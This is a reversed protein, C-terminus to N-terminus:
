DGLEGSEVLEEIQQKVARNTTLFRHELRQNTLPSTDRTELWREIEKREYTNGDAAIVPDVMLERSIPCKLQESLNTVTAKLKKKTRALEQTPSAQQDDLDIPLSSTGPETTAKRKRPLTPSVSAFWNTWM